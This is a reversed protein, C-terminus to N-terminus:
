HKKSMWKKHEEFMKILVENMPKCTKWEYLDYGDNLHDITEKDFKGILTGNLDTEGYQSIYYIKKNYNVTMRINEIYPFPKDLKSAQLLKKFYNNKIVMKGGMGKFDKKYIPVFTQTNFLKFYVVSSDPLKCAHTKSSVLFVFTCILLFSFSLKM